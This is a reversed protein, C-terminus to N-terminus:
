VEGNEVVEINGLQSLESQLYESDGCCSIVINEPKFYKKQVEFVEDITSERIKELFLQYYNEPLSFLEAGALIGAKQQPTELMRLFGGTMYQIATSHEELSINESSFLEMQEIIKEISDRTSQKNLDAGVVLANGWLRTDIASSIGYTYGLKERILNNLRSKFYGGFITNALQYLPFDPNDRDIAPKGLRLSTQQSEAKDIIGIPKDTRIVSSKIGPTNIKKQDIRSIQSEILSIAENEDYNGAVVIFIETNNLLEKHWDIIHDDNIAAVEESLGAITRGYPHDHYYLKSFTARALFSPDFWNQKNSAIQQKKLKATENKPFNSNLLCDFAITAGKIFHESLSIFQIFTDDWRGGTSMSIGYHEYESAIQKASMENTGKTLMLSTLNATGNMRELSAGRKLLVKMTILPQTNDRIMLLQIGNKLKVRKWHFFDFHPLNDSLPIENRNLTKKNM